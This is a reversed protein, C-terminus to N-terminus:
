AQHQDVQALGAVDPQRAGWMYVPLVPCWLGHKLAVPGDVTLALPLSEERPTSPGGVVVCGDGAGLGAGAPNLVPAYSLM